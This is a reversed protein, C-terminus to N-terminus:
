ILTEQGFIKNKIRKLLILVRRVKSNTVTVLKREFFLEKIKHQKIEQILQKHFNSGYWEPVKTSFGFFHDFTKIKRIVFYKAYKDLDEASITKKLNNVFYNEYEASGKFTHMCSENHQRYYYVIKTTSIVNNENNFAIRVNSITDEGMTIDRPINFIEQSFLKKRFLKATPGSDIGLIMNIRHTEDSITNKKIHVQPINFETQNYRFMKGTIIDVNPQIHTVLHELADSPLTDDGDVFTIWECDEAEEVGRARARTVGANEQHIVTIRSDKKAYEDCIVGSNDPSGDDVLIAEWNTYTQAIVSDLCKSLYKETNYIPIIISILNNM